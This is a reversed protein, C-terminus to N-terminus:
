GARRARARPIRLELQRKEARRLWSKTLWYTANALWRGTTVAGIAAFMLIAWVIVM